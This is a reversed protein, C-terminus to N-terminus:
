MSFFDLPDLRHGYRRIEYHLHIGTEGRVNGTNGMFGIVQGQTVKDGKKLYLDRNHSYLTTFADSHQIEVVTGYGMNWGTGTRIVIGDAAAFIPGGGRTQLDLGPHDDSFYQTIFCASNCPKVFSIPVSSSVSSAEENEVATSSVAEVDSKIPISIVQEAVIFGGEIPNVNEIEQVSVDYLLAIDEITQGPTVTHSFTEVDDFPLTHAVDKPVSTPGQESVTCGICLFSTILVLHFSSRHFM